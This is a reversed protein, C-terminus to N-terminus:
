ENGAKKGPKDFLAKMLASQPKGDELAIDLRKRAKPSLGLDDCYERFDKLLGRLNGLEPSTNKAGTKFEQVLGAAQVEVRAKDIYLLTLAAHEIIVEDAESYKGTKRCLERIRAAHAQLEPEQTTTKRRAM